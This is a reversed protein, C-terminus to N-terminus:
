PDGIDSDFRDALSAIKNIEAALDKAVKRYIKIDTAIYGQPINEVVLFVKVYPYLRFHRARKTEIQEDSSKSTVQVPVILGSRLSIIIDIGSKDLQGNQWSHLYHTIKGQAMWRECIWVVANEAASNAYRHYRKNRRHKKKKFRRDM